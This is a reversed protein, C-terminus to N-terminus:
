LVRNKAFRLLKDCAIAETLRLFTVSGYYGDGVLLARAPLRAVLAQLQLAAVEGQTAQSPIRQNDLVYTWSSPTQPLLALMSFQWGAVVPKSGEPLNSAHVYTRDRATKSLPRAISSADVGLVLRQAPPLPALGVFLRQL